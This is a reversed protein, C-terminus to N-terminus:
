SYKSTTEEIKTITDTGFSTYYNLRDLQTQYTATLEASITPNQIKALLDTKMTDMKISELVSSDEEKVDAKARWEKIATLLPKVQTYVIVLGAMFAVEAGGFAIVMGGYQVWLEQLHEM